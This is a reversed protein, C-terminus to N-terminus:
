EKLDKEALEFAQDAPAPLEYAHLTPGEAPNLWALERLRTSSAILDRWTRCVSQGQVVQLPPLNSLVRELLEPIYLAASGM